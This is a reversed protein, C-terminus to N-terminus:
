IDLIAAMTAMKFNKLGCSSDLGLDTQASVQHSANARCPSESSSFDKQLPPWRSIRYVVDGLGYTPHLQFKIHPMLAVYHNLIGLITRNRCGDQFDELLMQERITLRILCFKTLCQPSM